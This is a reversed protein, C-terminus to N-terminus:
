QFFSIRAATEQRSCSPSVFSLQILETLFIYARLTHINTKRRKRYTKRSKVNAQVFINVKCAQKLKKVKVRQLPKFIRFITWYCPCQQNCQVPNIYYVCMYMNACTKRFSESVVFAAYHDVRAINFRSAFSFCMFIENLGSVPYSRYYPVKM